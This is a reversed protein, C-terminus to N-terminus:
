LRQNAIDRRQRSVGSGANSRQKAADERNEAVAVDGADALSKVSIAVLQRYVARVVLLRHRMRGDGVALSM